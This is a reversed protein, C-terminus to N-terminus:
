VDIRRGKVPQGVMAGTVADLVGLHRGQRTYVEIHGHLSDWEYLRDGAANRWRKRGGPAGCSIQTDLFCPNPRSIGVGDGESNGAATFGNRSRSRYTTRRLVVLSTVAFSVSSPSKDRDRACARM